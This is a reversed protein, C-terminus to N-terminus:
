VCSKERNAKKSLMQGNSIITRGGKSWPIIHDAEMEDLPYEKGDRPCVGGQKEYLERKQNATFSRISLYKEEKTFLYTYIGAKKTVDEDAMLESVEAEVDVANYAYDKYDNYLLGWDIGKMEKRNTTFIKNVWDIVNQYYEWIEKCDLDHQHEGMYLEINGKSIWKLTTQLYDQRIPSGKLLKSGISYAACGTKSFHRKASALWSGQYTANRLEQVTLKEGAINITTFWKLKEEANGKCTYIMLEYDLVQQQQEPTLCHFFQDNKTALDGNVFKCISITRQQGDLVEFTGNQNDVWYMTNLPLNNMVTELVAQSKKLDYVFERQYPPRIDLLGNYGVVGESDRDKYGVVLEKITVKKLEVKM